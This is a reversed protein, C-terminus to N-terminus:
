LWSHVLVSDRFLDSYHLDYTLALPNTEMAVNSAKFFWVTWNLSASAAAFPYHRTKPSFYSLIMFSCREVISLTEM